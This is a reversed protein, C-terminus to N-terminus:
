IPTSLLTRIAATDTIVLRRKFKPAGGTFVVTDQYVGVSFVFSQGEQSTQFLAYSTEVQWEDGAQATVRPESIVHRDTHINYINAQRLSAVRDRIMAKNDCTLLSLPLGRVHNERAVIRYVADETFCDSWRELQGDDLHACCDALLRRVQEMLQTETM